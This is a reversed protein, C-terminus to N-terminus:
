ARAQGSQWRLKKLWELLVANFASAQEYHPNHGSHEFIEIQFNEFESAFGDWLLPLGTLYDYKGLALLVPRKLEHLGERINLDRLIVGWIHDIISMNTHVGKWMFSADFNMDYWSQPGAALCMLEFRREPEAAVLKPLKEWNDFFAKKREKSAHETFYEFCLKRRMDSNNPAAGIMVVGPVSAQYRKAYELALLANGSHGCVIWEEIGFHKRAAEIDNLLLDLTVENRAATEDCPAFGRHDLFILQLKRELDASFNLEDFASSGVVVIPFGNGKIVYRFSFGERDITGAKTELNM